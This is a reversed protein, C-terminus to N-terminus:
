DPSHRSSRQGFMKIILAACKVTIIYARTRDVSPFGDVLNGEPHLAYDDEAGLGMRSIRDNIDITESVNIRYLDPLVM